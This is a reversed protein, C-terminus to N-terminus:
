GGTLLPSALVESLMDSMDKVISKIYEDLIVLDKKLFQTKKFNKFM